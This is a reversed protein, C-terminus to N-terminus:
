VLIDDNFDNFDEESLVSMDEEMDSDPPSETDPEEAKLDTDTSKRSLSSEPNPWNARVFDYVNQIQSQNGTPSLRCIPLVDPFFHTASSVTGKFFENVCSNFRSAAEEDDFIAIAEQGEPRVKKPWLDASVRLSM